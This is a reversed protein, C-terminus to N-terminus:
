ISCGPLLKLRQPALSGLSLTVIPAVAFQQGFGRLGAPLLLERWGWDHTIPAFTWMSLTFCSFGFMMVLCTSAGPLFPISLFACVQFLGTSVRRLRDAFCQVGACTSFLPTLYITTFHSVASSPSLSGLGFNRIKLGLFDVIAAPSEAEGSSVWVRWPRMWATTRIDRRQAL